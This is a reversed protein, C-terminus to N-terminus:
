AALRGLACEPCVICASSLKASLRDLLAHEDGAFLEAVAPRERVARIARSFAESLDADVDWYIRAHKACIRLVRSHLGILLAAADRRVEDLVAPDASARKRLM